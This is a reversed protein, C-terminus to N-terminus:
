KANVPEKYLFELYIPCEQENVHKVEETVNNGESDFEEVLSWLMQDMKFSGSLIMVLSSCYHRVCVNDAVDFRHHKCRQCFTKFEESLQM